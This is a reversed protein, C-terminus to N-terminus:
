LKYDSITINQDPYQIIWDDNFQIKTNTFQMITTNHALLDYYIFNVWGSALYEITDTCFLIPSYRHSFNLIQVDYYGHTINQNPFDQAIYYRLQSQITINMISPYTWVSSYNLQINSTIQFKLPTQDIYVFSWSPQIATQLISILSVTQERILSTMKTHTLIIIGSVRVQIRDHEMEDIITSNEWFTSFTTTVQTINLILIQSQSGIIIYGKFQIHISDPINCHLQIIINNPFSFQTSSLSIMIQTNVDDQYSSYIGFGTMLGGLLCLIGITMARKRIKHPQDSPTYEFHPSVKKQQKRKKKHKVM